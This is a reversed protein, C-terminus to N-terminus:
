WQTTEKKMKPTISNEVNYNYFDNAGARKSADTLDLEGSEIKDLMDSAKKAYDIPTANEGRDGFGAIVIPGVDAITMYECIKKVVLLASTGTIPTNYLANVRSDITASHGSIFELVETEKIKTDTSFDVGPLWKELNNVSCYDTMSKGM